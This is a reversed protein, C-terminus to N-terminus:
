ESYEWKFGYASQQLGQCVNSIGVRASARGLARCADSLSKYEAVLKGTNLDICKVKKPENGFATRNM